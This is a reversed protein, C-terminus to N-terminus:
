FRYSSYYDDQRIKRAPMFFLSILAGVCSCMMDKQADWIDGQQGNYRIAVSQTINNVLMWEFLEYGMSMTCLYAFSMLCAQLKKRCSNFSYEYLAPLVCLGFMFHAFRDYRNPHIAGPELGMWTSFTSTEPIFTSLYDSYPVYSYLWRAGVIHILTFIAIGVYSLPQLSGKFYDYILFSLLLLTGISQLLQEWFYIPSVFSVGTTIM